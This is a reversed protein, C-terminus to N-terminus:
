RAASSACVRETLERERCRAAEAGFDEEGCASPVAQVLEVRRRRWDAPEGGRADIEPEQLMRESAEVLERRAVSLDADDGNGEPGAGASDDEDEAAVGIAGDEGIGLGIARRALAERARAAGGEAADAITERPAAAVLVSAQPGQENWLQLPPGQFRHGRADGRDEILLERGPPRPLRDVEGPFRPCEREPNRALQQEPDAVADLRRRQGRQEALEHAPAVPEVHERRAPQAGHGPRRIRREFAM